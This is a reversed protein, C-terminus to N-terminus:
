AKVEDGMLVLCSELVDVAFEVEEPKANLSPVIRVADKGATLILLGRDRAMLM